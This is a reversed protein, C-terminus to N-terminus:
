GKLIKKFKEVIRMKQKRCVFSAIDEYKKTPTLYGLLMSPSLNRLSRWVAYLWHYGLARMARGWYYSRPWGRRTRRLTRSPIDEYCRVKLGMSMAKYVVYSEYGWNSPLFGISRLFDLRYVRGSGRPQSRTIEEGEIYGSAIAVDEAIVRKVLEEIYTPPLVHDAGLIMVFDFDEPVERLGVNMVNACEPKGAYSEEHYPLNIVKCGLRAAIEGTRDVSGDNVVIILDPSWTQKHLARIVVPLNKEENRAPIVIAIKPRRVEGGNLGFM